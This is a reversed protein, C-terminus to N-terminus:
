SQTKNMKRGRTENSTINPQKNSSKRTELSLITNSYIKGKFSSKRCGRPKSNSCKQKWKGKPLKKIEEKIEVTNPLITTANM